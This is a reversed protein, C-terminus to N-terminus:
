MRNSLQSWDTENLSPFVLQNFFPDNSYHFLKSFCVWSIHVILYSPLVKLKKLYLLPLFIGFYFLKGQM